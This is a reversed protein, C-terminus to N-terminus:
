RGSRRLRVRYSYHDPHFWNVALEVPRRHGDSYLRDIRLVPRGPELGLTAGADPPLPAVSISQDAEVVEVDMRTDLLGLVTATSTAGSEHLEPVDSLLRGIAPPLAVTTFCLPLGDHVRRFTVSSVVDTDLGLRGAAPLDLRRQLPDVLELRTDESLGILDEISGFQRLYRRDRAVPFTGRGPVRFVLGENVLEQMARRVTQRSLARTAALEAETPLRDHEGYRGARVATRLERALARYASEETARPVPITEGRGTLSYPGVNTRGIISSQGSLTL